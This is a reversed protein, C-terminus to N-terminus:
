GITVGFAGAFKCGLFAADTLRADRFSCAAFTPQEHRSGLM